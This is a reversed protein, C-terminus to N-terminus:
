SGSGIAYLPGFGSGFYITGDAGIVPSSEADGGVEYKWNLSGGASLAYIYGDDSGFYVIGNAGITPSSKISNGTEYYWKPTGNPNLAYFYGDNSGFYITGDAGIAPSTTVWDGTRKPWRLSGDPNLAYLCGDNSGFYITGDTGIAPSSKISNGTEYKWKLSGDSNIAYFHKDDSGFYITGDLGIAPSSKILNGTEYKWKLTGDPDLAYLCNDYSGFYIIGGEGIVPSSAVSNGTAYRWKRSGDTDLAYLYNDRSGFYITGDARIAPSSDVGGGTEYNWKLSGDPNVAYLYKDYSGFYITGDSGIAPSSAIPAGTGYSWKLTSEASGSYPSKGTHQSGYRFMPWPTNALSFRSFNAVISIDNDITLTISKSTGEIDGSWNNFAYKESPNATITIETGKEYAGSAPSVKGGEKPIIDINLACKRQFYAVVRKAGDMTITTEKSNGTVDGTWHDFVYGEAPIATLKVETGNAFEGGNPSVSGSRDPTVHINLTLTNKKIFHAIVSKDQSMTVTVKDSTGTSDGSWHGFIYGEAPTATLIVEAGKDYNGSAPVVSGGDTPSVSVALSYETGGGGCSGPVLSALMVIAIVLAHLCIERNM